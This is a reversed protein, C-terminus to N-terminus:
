LPIISVVDVQLFQGKYPQAPDTIGPVTLTGPNNIQTYDITTAHLTLTAGGVVNVVATYDVVAINVPVNSRNLYYTQAPDSVILSYSNWMDAAPTGGTQFYAGDNTGGTYGKPEIVGRFRLTVAYTVDTDGTLTAVSDAPDDCICVSWSSTPPTCPIKWQQGDLDVFDCNLAAEAAACAAALATADADAQSVYSVRTAERTVDSGPSDEPCEATCSQTSTWKPPYEEIDQAPNPDAVISIPLCSDVNPYVVPPCTGCLHAMLTGIAELNDDAVAPYFNMFFGGSAMEQMLTFGGGYARVGLGMVIGAQSKFTETIDLPNTGLKNEGDSILVIVRHDAGPSFEALAGTLGSSIDTFRETTSLSDIKSVADELSSAAQFTSTGTFDFRGVVLSHKSFDLAPALAKAISKAANFKTGQGTFGLTMSKSSDLLFVFEISEDECNEVVELQAFAELTHWTARVTTIGEAVTTALGTSSNITAVATSVVSFTSYETVDFELGDAIVYASYQVTQLPERLSYEPRLVLYAETPDCITPNAAAFAPNSCDDPVDDGGGGTTSNACSNSETTNDWQISM